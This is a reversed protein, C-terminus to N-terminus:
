ANDAASAAESDELAKQGAQQVVRGCALKRGDREYTIVGAIHFYREDREYGVGAIHEHATRQALAQACPLAKDVTQSDGEGDRVLEEAYSDRALTIELRGIVVASHGHSNGAPREAGGAADDGAAGQRLADHAGEADGEEAHEERNDNGGGAFAADNEGDYDCAEDGAEHRGVHLRESLQCATCAGDDEGHRNCRYRRPQARHM